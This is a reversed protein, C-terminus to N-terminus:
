RSLVGALVAPLAPEIGTGPVRRAPRSFGDRRSAHGPDRCRTPPRGPRGAVKRGAARSAQRGHGGSVVQRDEARADRHGAVLAQPALEEVARVRAPDAGLVALRRGVALLVVLVESPRRRSRARFTRRCSPAAASPTSAARGSASPSPTPGSAASGSPVGAGAGRHRLLRSRGGRCPPPRSGPRSLPWAPRRAYSRPGRAAAAPSEAQWAPPARCGRM